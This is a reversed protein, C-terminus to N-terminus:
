MGPQLFPPSPSLGGCVKALLLGHSVGVGSGADQRSTAIGGELEGFRLPGHGPLAPCLGWSWYRCRGVSAGTWTVVGAGMGPCYLGRRM